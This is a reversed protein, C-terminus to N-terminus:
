DGKLQNYTYNTLERYTLKNKFEMYTLHRVAKVKIKFISGNEIKSPEVVVEKIKTSM